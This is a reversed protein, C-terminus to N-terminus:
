QIGGEQAQDLLEDIEDIHNNSVVTVYRISSFDEFLDVDIQRISGNIIHSEGAIGLPIEPPFLSSFGSTLVTDGISVETHIPVQSLIAKDTHIGDWILPVVAGDKKIRASINVETNMLSLGYSYNENVATIIGVVGVPTIVGSQPIVGQSRGKDIVFFNKQGKKGMRIIRANVCKFDPYNAKLISDATESRYIQEFHLLKATLDSNKQALDRNQKELSFYHKFNEGQSWLVTMVGHSLRNPWINQLTSSSSLIDLAAVEMLIFIAAKFIWHTGKRKRSM